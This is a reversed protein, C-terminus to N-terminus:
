FAEIDDEELWGGHEAESQTSRCEQTTTGSEEEGPLTVDPLPENEDAIEPFGGSWRHFELKSFLRHNSPPKSILRDLYYM